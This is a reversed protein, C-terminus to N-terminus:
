AVAASILYAMYGIFVIALAAGEWREVRYKTFSFLWLMMISVVMMTLDVTTIGQIAMPSILGTIGLIMLINFVNSGLVNGIAIGSNGRYAAVTSTALEPLSTGGAVITLGIVADSVGLSHAIASANGVFVNSGLVLCVLGLLMLLCAKLLSMAPKAEAEANAPADDTPKPQHAGRVTFVMFVIFLVFLVLADIRGIESDLCMMLLLTSAVMAFPIDKRVTTHLITIPAVMAAVGVILLTNFINSGVVNGVALDPTGNFASMLSVFFEPMSTGMAVVTLGIVIQPIGMREALAVSGDTLRDAGWLVVAVGAVLLLAQLWVNSPVLALLTLNNM